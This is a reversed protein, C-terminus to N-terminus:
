LTDVRRGCRADVPRRKTMKGSRKGSVGSPRLDKAALDPKMHLPESRDLAPAMSLSEHGVFHQDIRRMRFFGPDDDDSTVADFFEIKLRRISFLKPAIDIKGFHGPHLWRELRRKNFIAAVAM